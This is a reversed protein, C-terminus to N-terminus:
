RGDDTSNDDRSQDPPTTQVHLLQLVSEMAIRSRPLEEGTSIRIPRTGDPDAFTIADDLQYENILTNVSQLSKYNTEAHVLVARRITELAEDTSFPIIGDKSAGAYYAIEEPIDNDSVDNSLRQGAQLLEGLQDALQPLSSRLEELVEEADESIAM